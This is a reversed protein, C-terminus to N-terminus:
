IRPKRLVKKKAFVVVVMTSLIMFLPLIIFSPFEPITTFTEFPPDEFIYGNGMGAYIKGDYTILSIAYYAGEASEFSISWDTGNYTYINNATGVYLKSDYTELSYIWYDHDFVTTWNNGDFEIVRGSFGTGGQYVPKRWAQDRTALYLKGNYVHMDLFAYVDSYTTAISWDTGNFCYVAGGSSVYMKGNYVTFSDVSGFPGSFNLITSFATDIHWNDPNEASGTCYYLTPSNDLLTGAYLSNNYVGLVKIYTPVSFILNFATGNYSYLGGKGGVILKDQYTELSVVFTPANITNWSSGNYVCLKNDAAAYLSQNFVAFDVIPYGGLGVFSKTWNGVIQVTGDVYLNDSISSEGPVPWAYASIIYKGKAWGETNWIFTMTTSNTSTLTITQTALSTTNAYITTNFTETFDGRNEVTVNIYVSHGQEIVNKSSTVNLVAINHNEIQARRSIAFAYTIRWKDPPAQIIEQTEYDITIIPYGMVTSGTADEQVEYADYSVYQPDNHMECPPENTPHTHPLPVIGLSCCWEYADCYPDSVLIEKLTSNIGALTTFHGVELKEGHWLQLNLLVPNGLEFQEKIADYSPDVMRIISFMGEEGMHSIVTFNDLANVENDQNFDARMDWNPSGPVSGYAAEVIAGDNEDVVGNGDADGYPNIGHIQLYQALGAETDYTGYHALGTRLGQTDMLYALEEILPQVNRPDHDDWSSLNYSEVMSFHDSIVPPPQPNSNNLTEYKSDLWWLANATAVPVCYDWHGSGPPYDWQDQKQDFDPMGYPSYDTFPSALTYVPPVQQKILGGETSASIPYGSTDALEVSLELVNDGSDICEFVVNCLEPPFAGTKPQGTENENATIKVTGMANDITAEFEYPDNLFNGDIVSLAQAITKNFSLTINLSWLNEVYEIAISVVYQCPYPVRSYSPLTLVRVPPYTSESTLIPTLSFSIILFFITELIVRKIM